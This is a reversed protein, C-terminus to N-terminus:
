ATEQQPDRRRAYWIMPLLLAWWGIPSPTTDCGCGSSGLWTKAAYADCNNDVGDSAVEPVLPNIAGDLDDCDENNTVYGDPQSCQVIVGDEGLRGYGDSDEDIYWSQSPYQEPDEDNCDPEGELTNTWGGQPPESDRCESAPEECSPSNFEAYYGDGDCDPFWSSADVSSEDDILDDCNDDIGNCVEDARGNISPDEDDCDLDNQTYADGPPECQTLPSAEEDGNNDGDLDPWWETNPNITPDEDDCDEKTSGELDWGGDPADGDDCISDSPSCSLVVQLGLFSDGDCDAQWTVADLAENDNQGDCDNDEGDCYEDAGPFILEDIDDCDTDNPALTDSGTYDSQCGIHIVTPGAGFGDEDSDLYWLASPNEIPDDDNCDPSSPPTTTWDGLPHDGDECPGTPEDCQIVPELVHFGDGDCDPYWSTTPNLSPDSDDCDTNDLVDTPDAPACDTLSYPDGYTDADADAYWSVGPYQDADADNCDLNNTTYGAIPECQQQSITPDGYEDGDNDQYWITNSNVTPDDDDCDSDDDVFGNPAHCAQSTKSPDGFGDGDKDKYWITEPNIAPDLDDCDGNLTVADPHPQSCSQIAPSVGYGDGDADAYWPQEEWVTNDDDDCDTDDPVYGPPQACSETTASSDGYSDGDNDLYWTLTINISADTDDCDEDNNVYGAPQSCDWIAISPNGYEDEDNDQYWQTLLQIAVPDDDDCDNANNVYGTPQDCAEVSQDPDGYTDGDSDLYWTQEGLISSDGDDCDEGNNVSTVDPPDCAEIGTSADGYADLDIDDYWVQPDTITADSDDCDTDNIVFGPPQDCTNVSSSANGFSDNDSDEFWTSTDGVTNDTDDCDLMYILGDSDGDEHWELKANEGGFAGIDSRPSGLAPLICGILTDTPDCINSSGADILPSSPQPRLQTTEFGDVTCDPLTANSYPYPNVLIPDGDQDNHTGVNITTELDADSEFWHNYDVGSYSLGTGATVFLSYLGDTVLNNVFEFSTIETAYISGSGDALAENGLFDNNVFTAELESTPYNGNSPQAEMSYAGGSTQAKNLMYIDNKATLEVGPLLYAAGGVNSTNECWLNRYSTVANNGVAVMAGGGINATNSIFRNDLLSTTTSDLALGGGYGESTNAKFINGELNLSSDFAYVAGGDFGTNTEFINDILKLNSYSSYIAGGYDADNLNFASTSITVDSSDIHIAGGVVADNQSFSSNTLTLTADFTQIAPGDNNSNNEFTCDDITTTSTDIIVASFTHGSFDLGRLTATVFNSSSGIYFSNDNSISFSAGSAQGEFILDKTLFTSENFDGCVEITDGASANSIAQSLDLSGCSSCNSANSGCVITTAATGTPSAALIPLLLLAYRIM